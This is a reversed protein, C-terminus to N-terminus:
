QQRHRRRKRLRPSPTNSLSMTHTVDHARWSVRTSRATKHRWHRARMGRSSGALTPSVPHLCKKESFQPACFHQPSSGGGAAHRVCGARGRSPRWRSPGRPRAPVLRPSAAFCAAEPRSGGAPGSSERRRRRRPDRCCRSPPACWGAAGRCYFSPPPSPRRRLRRHAQASM